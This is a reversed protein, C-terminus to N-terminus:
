AVQRQVPNSFPQDVAVSPETFWRPGQATMYFHDELRVGFEGEIVIMPENSFCMGAALTQQNDKVLYPWEHIDLGIGHGTRHPLGPLKYGPGFGHAELVRRAAADVAGCAVGIQAADFAAAQAEKEVQWVQRQRATPEGFVYSRTIDSHYGHVRCGTDILVMDGNQLYQEGEAGHPIATAAGFGVICFTSKGGGHARHAADIFQVVESASIGPRLIRAARRHVDLTINKAAQLLALEHASKHMRCAATILKANVFQADPLAQRLGDFVFFQAQEDLALSRKALGCTHLLAAVLACPNQEEQWVHLPGSVCGELALLENIKSEEFAPCIYELGREPTLLACVLRESAYWSLGTFYHLSTGAPLILGAINNAAMMHLAKQLRLKREDLAIPRVGALDARIASLELAAHSGGIQQHM